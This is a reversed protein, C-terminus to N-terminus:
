SSTLHGISLYLKTRVELSKNPEKANTANLNERKVRGHQRPGNKSSSSDSAAVNLSEVGKVVSNLADM